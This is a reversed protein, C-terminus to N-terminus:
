VHCYISHLNVMNRKHTPHHTHRLRTHTVSIARTDSVGDDTLSGGGSNDESNDPPYGLDGLCNIIPQEWGNHDIIARLKPLLWDVYFAKNEMIRARYPSEPNTSIQLVYMCNTFYTNTFYTLGFLDYHLIYIYICPKNTQVERAQQYVMVLFFGALQKTVFNVIRTPMSLKPNLKSVIVM